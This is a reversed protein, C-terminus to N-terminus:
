EPSFVKEAPIEPRSFVGGAEVERWIKEAWDPNVKGTMMRERDLNEWDRFGGIYIHHRLVERNRALLGFARSRSAGLNVLDRAAEMFATGKSVHYAALNRLHYDRLKSDTLVGTEMERLIAGGEEARDYFPTHVGLIPPFKGQSAKKGNYSRIVHFIEHKTLMEAEEQSYVREDSVGKAVIVTEEEPINHCGAVSRVEVDYEMGLRSIEDRFLEAVDEAHLQRGSEEESSEKKRLIERSERASSEDIPWLKLCNSRWEDREKLNYALDAQLKIEQFTGRFINRVDETSLKEFGYDNIEAKDIKKAEENLSSLVKLCDSHDYKLGSFKFEPKFGEGSGWSGLYEELQEQKNEISVNRSWGLSSELGLVATYLDEAPREGSVEVTEGLRIAREIDSQRDIEM